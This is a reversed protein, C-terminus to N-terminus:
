PLYYGIVLQPSNAGASGSYFKIYNALFDNNDDLKFRLRFQTAGTTNIYASGITASYWANIPTNGFKAINMNGAAQFDGVTLAPTGFGTVKTDVFLGGFKTFMNIKAGVQVSKKIQLTASTVVAGNPLSTDFHLIGRYQKNNADDGLNFTSAKNNIGGGKKSNESSELIWGDNNAISPFIQTLPRAVYSQGSTFDGNGTGIGGLPVAAANIITDNDAVDLRLSGSGSGTSGAILLHPM